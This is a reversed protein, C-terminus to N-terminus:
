ENVFFCLANENITEQRLLSYQLNNTKSLDPSPCWKLTKAIQLFQQLPRKM